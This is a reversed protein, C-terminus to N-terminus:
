ETMLKSLSDYSHRLAIRWGLTEATECLSAYSLEAGPEDYAALLVLAEDAYRVVMRNEAYVAEALYTTGPQLATLDCTKLRAAAWQAQPSAFAGKTATKWEGGHWFIIILSGDVKEFTEFALDPITEGREFVNFFKPFPTAVVTENNTDLVLGRAIVSAENWQGDYVCSSTYCYLRLGDPPTQESVLRAAHAVKLA